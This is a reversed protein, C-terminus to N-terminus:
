NIIVELGGVFDYINSYFLTYMINHRSMKLNFYGEVDERDTATM